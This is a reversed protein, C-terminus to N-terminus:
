IKGDGCRPQIGFDSDFQNEMASSQKPISITQFYNEEFNSYLFPNAISSISASQQGISVVKYRRMRKNHVLIVKIRIFQM